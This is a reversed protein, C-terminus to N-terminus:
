VHVSRWQRKGIDLDFEINLHWFKEIMAGILNNTTTAYKLTYSLVIKTALCVIRLKVCTTKNIIM